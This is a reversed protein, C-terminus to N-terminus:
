ATAMETRTAPKETPEAEDAPHTLLDFCDAFSECVPRRSEAAHVPTAPAPIPSPPMSRRSVGPKDLVMNNMILGVYDGRLNFAKEAFVRALPTGDMAYIYDGLRFGQPSGQASYIYDAMQRGTVEFM